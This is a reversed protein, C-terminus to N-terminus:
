EYQLIYYVHGLFFSGLKQDCMHHGLNSYIVVECFEIVASSYTIFLKYQYLAM